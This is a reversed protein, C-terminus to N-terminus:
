DNARPRRRPMLPSGDRVSIQVTKPGAREVTLVIQTRRHWLSNTLVERPLLTATYALSELDWRSLAESVLRRGVGVSDVTPALTLEYTMGGVVRTCSPM